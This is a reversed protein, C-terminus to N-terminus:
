YVIVPTGMETNEYLLRMAKLPTNICGHSGAYKYRSGGFSSQWSADHIGVGTYDVQMWYNVWSKYKTGDLNTGQLYRDQNKIWVEWIGRPTNYKGNPIGTVIPTDVVINGDKFYVMRQNSLSIEIYTNGINGNNIAKSTYVIPIKNVTNSTLATYIADITEKKNIQVGFNGGSVKINEGNFTKFDREKRLNDHKIKLDMVYDAVKERSVEFSDEDIFKEYYSIPEETGDQFVLFLKKDALLNLAQVKSELDKSYIAPYIYEDKLRITNNSNLFNYEITKILKNTDLTNGEIEKKILYKDNEYIISADQPTIQNQLLQSKNIWDELSEENIKRVLKNEYEHSKFIEKPWLFENQEIVIEKEWDSIFGLEKPNLSYEINNKDEITLNTYRSKEFVDDIKKFSVDLGNFKTNPYTYNTFFFVGLFYVLVIFIIIAFTIVTKKKNM